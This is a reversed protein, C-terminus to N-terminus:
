AETSVLDLAWTCPDPSPGQAARPAAGPPDAAPAARQGAPRPQGRRPRWRGSCWAAASIRPSSETAVQVRVCAVGAHTSACRRRRRQTAVTATILVVRALEAKNQWALSMWSCDIPICHGSCQKRNRLRQHRQPFRASVREEPQQQLPQLRHQREDVRGGDRLGALAPGRQQV